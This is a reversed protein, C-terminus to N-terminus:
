PFRGTQEAPRKRSQFSFLTKCLRHFITRLRRILSKESKWFDSENISKLWIQAKYYKLRFLNQAAPTTWKEFTEPTTCLNRFYLSAGAGRRMLKNLIM